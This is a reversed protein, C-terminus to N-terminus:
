FGWERYNKWHYTPYWMNFQEVTLGGQSPPTMHARKWGVVWVPRDLVTDWVMHLHTDPTFVAVVTMSAQM